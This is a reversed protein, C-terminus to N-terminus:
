LIHAGQRTVFTHAEVAQEPIAKRRKKEKKKTHLLDKQSFKPRGKGTTMRDISGKRM